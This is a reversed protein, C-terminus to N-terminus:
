RAVAAAAFDVALESTEDDDYGVAIAGERPKWAAPVVILPCRTSGAVKLPLTGHLFGAVRGTKNTGMVLLNSEASAAVLEADAIGHRIVTHHAVAPSERELHREAALIAEEYSRRFDYEAGEIPYWGLAVVTMITIESPVVRAREMAWELAAYSAQGGDVAVAIKEQQM